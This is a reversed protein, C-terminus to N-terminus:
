LTALHARVARAVRDWMIEVTHHARVHAQGRAAMGLRRDPDDLLGVMADRLSDADGVPPMCATLGPSFYEAMAVTHSVVVACGAAAANLAVTQGTPYAVDHTPVVVVKTRQLLDRYHDPRLVGLHRVNAPLTLAQLREPITLVGVQLDTGAVAGLLTDYDRGRDVGVVLLDVDREAAVDGTFFTTPVGFTVDVLQEQRAGHALFIAEQNRSLHFILASAEIVRRVRAVARADGSRLDEAAWCVLSYLPNRRYPGPVRQLLAPLEAWHEWVALTADTRAAVPWARLPQLRLGSRHEIVDVLKHRPLRPAELPRIGHEELREMGYPLRTPRVSEEFEREHRALSVDGIVNLSVTIDRTM